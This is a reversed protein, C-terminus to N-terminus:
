GSAGQNELITRIRRTLEDPDFPKSLYTNAGLGLAEEVLETAATIVIVPIQSTRRLEKLAKIGGMGPMKLDLVIVDPKESEIKTLAGQGTMATTVDYGSTMLKLRAFRLIREDDDVLLIRHRTGRIEEVAV